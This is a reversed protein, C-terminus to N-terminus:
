LCLVAYSISMLSQLEYTHEESRYDKDIVHDSHPGVYLLFLRFQEDKDLHQFYIRPAAHPTTGDGDKVHLNSTLAQGLQRGNKVLRITTQMGGSQALTINQAQFLSSLTQNLRCKSRFLTTYPFLTDTRTSRPPRRVM